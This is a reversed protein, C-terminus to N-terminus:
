PKFLKHMMDLSRVKSMGELHIRTFIELFRIANYMEVKNNMESHIDDLHLNELKQLFILSNKNLSLKGLSDCNPCILEGTLSDIFAHNFILNCQCCTKLNPMYGLRLSLQYLYFTFVMWYNVDTHNMKDLVRWGLRYLIPLSNNASTSKDLAEVVTLGLIIRDLASRLISFQHILETDKLIQIDRNNKHYYQLQIHNMPELLLGTTKKPRWAGKAMVTIKGHDKTFLRSIISSEGFPITKLVVANTSILM